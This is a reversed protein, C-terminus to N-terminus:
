PTAKKKICMSVCVPCIWVSVSSSVARKTLSLSAAIAARDSLIPTSCSLSTGSSRRGVAVQLLHLPDPRMLAPICDFLNLGHLHM